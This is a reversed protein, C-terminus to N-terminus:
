FYQASDLCDFRNLRNTKAHNESDEVGLWTEATSAKVLLDGHVFTFASSTDLTETVFLEGSNAVVLM